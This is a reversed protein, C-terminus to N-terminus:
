PPPVAAFPAREAGPFLSGQPLPASAALLAVGPLLPWPGQSVPAPQPHAAAPQPHAAAAAAAEQRRRETEAEMYVAYSGAVFALEAQLRECLVQMTASTLFFTTVEAM